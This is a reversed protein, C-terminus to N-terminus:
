DQPNCTTPSQTINGGRSVGGDALTIALPYSKRIQPMLYKGLKENIFNDQYRSVILARLYIWGGCGSFRVYVTAIALSAYEPVVSGVSKGFGLLLFPPETTTV